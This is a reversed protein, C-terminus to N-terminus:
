KTFAEIFEFNREQVYEILFNKWFLNFKKVEM